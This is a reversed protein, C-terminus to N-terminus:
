REKYGMSVTGTTGTTSMKKFVRRFLGRYKTHTTISNVKKRKGHKDLKANNWLHVFHHSLDTATDGEICVATDHFPMRVERERDLTCFTHDETKNMPKYKENCYDNGPFFCQDSDKFGIDHLPHNRTDWRGYCIDM